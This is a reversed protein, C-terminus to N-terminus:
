AETREESDRLGGVIDWTKGEGQENGLCGHTQLNELYSALILKKNKFLKILKILVKIKLSTSQSLKYDRWVSNIVINPVYYSSLYKHFSYTFYILHFPLSKFSANWMENHVIFSTMQLASFIFISASTM